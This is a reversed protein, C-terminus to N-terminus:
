KAIAVKKYERIVTVKIQGPYQMSEEIKQAIQEALVDVDRETTKDVSVIVRIERGGQIVYAKEVGKDSFSLAIKELEEIRKLYLESTEKRAGPRSGSIADAAQVLPAYIVQMEIDNHHSGIANVVEFPEGYKKAIEMGAIAHPKDIENDLVKGIDHLLGARKAIRTDLHLEAAIVGCIKAVEISHKLLNQEYSSRFHMKGVLKVLEPHMKGIGLEAIARRGYQIIEEDIIKYAKEVAQEITAPHVRGDALLMELAIRAIERRYPDHCSIGVVEPTDDIILDVGTLNEFTNINRGERGIIKGKDADSKLQVFVISHQATTESGIRQVGEIVLKQIIRKEEERYREIIEKINKEYRAILAEKLEEFMIKHAEELTLSMVGSLKVIYQHKLQEVEERNKAVEEEMERVRKITEEISQKQQEIKELEVKNRISEEYVKKEKENLEKERSLLKEEKAKYELQLANNVEQYAKQRAEDYKKRLTILFILYGIGAGVLTSIAITIYNEM